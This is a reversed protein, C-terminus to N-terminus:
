RYYDVWRVEIPGSDATLLAAPLAVEFLAPDGRLADVPASGLTCVRKPAQGEPRQVGCQLTGSSSKASFGELEPFGHLRVVIARPWGQAPARLVAGGIGSVRYVTLVFTGGELGSAMRDRTDPAAATAAPTVTATTSAMLGAEGTPAAAAPAPALPDALDVWGGPLPNPIVARVLFSGTDQSFSPDAFGSVRAVIEVQQSSETQAVFTSVYPITQSAAAVVSVPPPPRQPAAQESKGCGAPRALALLLVATCPHATTRTTNM